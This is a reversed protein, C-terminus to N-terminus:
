NLYDQLRSKVIEFTNHPLEYMKRRLREISMLKMQALVLSVKLDNPDTFNYYFDLDKQKSSLPIVWFIKNNFKKIILVPRSFNKGSGNQEFGINKGISSMWVEHEKPYHIVEVKTNLVKKQGNWIDFLANEDIM